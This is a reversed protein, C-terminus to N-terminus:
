IDRGLDLGIVRLTLSALPTPNNQTMAEIEENTYGLIGNESCLPGKRKQTM